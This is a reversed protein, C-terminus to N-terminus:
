YFEHENIETEKILDPFSEKMREKIYPFREATLKLYYATEEFSEHGLMTRMYPLYAMLDKGEDAWKRLLNVCYTHRFDHIRPGKGTHSIGAQELYRRFNKYVNGLTMPKGPLIMFFYEDDPSTAHIKEKLERCRLILLPHIPILREKHNKAELVHIYGKELNVDRIRALRLESVRMGSTYLIRFFVPMVDSRYPCSDPVSRGKDVADFFNQLEEDTYIHADYRTRKKTIGKPPIYAPIGIDNLYRCFVRMTSIRSAQNTVTEYTRKKCWLDCLEKTIYKESLANRCLFTDIRRLSGAEAEYSFGLARKLEILDRIEQQFISNYIEKSM